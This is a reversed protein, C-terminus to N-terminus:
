QKENVIRYYVKATLLYVAGYILAFVIFSCILCILMLTKNFMGLAMFMRTISPFSFATHVGAAALPLFFVMVIQSSISRKIEKQSLGVKRMIHFREKDEYGESIQKYYIILIMAMMFLLGLFLGVFLLGGYLQRLDDAMEPRSDVNISNIENEQFAAKLATRNDRIAQQNHGTLDYCLYYQQNSAYKGYSERQKADIWNLTEQDRVIMWYVNYVVYGSVDNGLVQQDFSGKIQYTNNFVTFTDWPFEGDRVSLLIENEELTENSGTLRNYDDLTMSLLYSTADGLLLEEEPIESIDDIFVNDKRYTAYALYTYDRTNELQVGQETAVKQALELVQDRKEVERVSTCIDRPSRLNVMDEMGFWLSCTAFVTVLVMTCLISVNALGIANQKMRYIMGSVNIFHNPQYYFRKNKRLAKLLSISGATFLLYTGLIVMVVAIFFLLISAVANTVKISIFYGGGLLLLGLVALVWKAKPEKEGVQGGHLLEIPKALHIQRISNLLILAFTASVIMAAFLLAPVSVYFSFDGIVGGLMKLLIFYLVRDLLVGLGFGLFLSLALIMLTEYCVVRSIHKKEMGLINLLGFEMKRRKMLFSNTYFLFVVTFLTTVWQGLNLTFIMNGDKLTPNQALSTIIYLMMVTLVATLMYPYYIKRHKRINGAALRIFFGKGM